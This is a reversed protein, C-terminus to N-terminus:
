IIPTRFNQKNTEHPIRPITSSEETLSYLWYVTNIAKYAPYGLIKKAMRFYLLTLFLLYYLLYSGGPASPLFNCKYILVHSVLTRTNHVFYPRIQGYKDSRSTFLKCLSLIPSNFYLLILRFCHFTMEMFMVKYKYAIQFIL